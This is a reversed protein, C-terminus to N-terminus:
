PIIEVTLGTPLRYHGPTSRLAAGLDAATPPSLGIEITRADVETIADRDDAKFLIQGDPGDIALGRGFPLRGDLAAAVRPAAYAGFTVVPEPQVSWRAVDVALSGLKSGDRAIGDAVLAATAPDALVSDRDLDTVLMPVKAAVLALVQATDWSKCAEYEDLTLGVLQLFAVQGHATDITELEPDAIFAAARIRTDPRDLNIPGNLDIHHGSGFVNGSENVYRALNQLLNVAWIPETDEDTRAVRITFEFGWGSYEAVTSEKQYLESMGYSVLHWHGPRAYLSIGDLPDPGGESWRMITGLHKPEMGPYLRDLAADIADWGPTPHEPEGHEHGSTEAATPHHATPDHAAPDHDTV